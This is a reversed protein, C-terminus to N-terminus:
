ADKELAVKGSKGAVKSIIESTDLKRCWFFCHELHLEKISKEGVNLDLKSTLLYHKKNVAAKTMAIRSKM